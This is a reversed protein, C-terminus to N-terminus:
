LIRLFASYDQFGKLYFDLPLICDREGKLFLVSNQKLDYASEALSMFDPKLIEEQLLLYLSQKADLMKFIRLFSSM